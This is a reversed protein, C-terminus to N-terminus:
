SRMLRPSSFVILSPRRRRTACSSRTASTAPILSVDHAIPGVRSSPALGLAFADVRGHAKHELDSAAHALGVDGLDVPPVATPVGVAEGCVVFPAWREAGGPGDDDDRLWRV